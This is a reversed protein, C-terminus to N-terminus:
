KQVRGLTHLELFAGTGETTRGMKGAEEM